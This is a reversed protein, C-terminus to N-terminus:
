WAPTLLLQLRVPVRLCFLVQCCQWCLLLAQGRRFRRQLRRLFSQVVSFRRQPRPLRCRRRRLCPHLFHLLALRCEARRPLPQRRALLRQLLPLYM